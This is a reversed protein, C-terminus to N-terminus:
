SKKTTIGYTEEYEKQQQILKQKRNYDAALKEANDVLFQGSDEM